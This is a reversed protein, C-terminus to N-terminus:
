IVKAIKPSTEALFDIFYRLLATLQKQGQSTLEDYSKEQGHKDQLYNVFDSIL